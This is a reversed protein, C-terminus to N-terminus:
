RMSASIGVYQVHEQYRRLQRSKDAQAPLAQRKKYRCGLM